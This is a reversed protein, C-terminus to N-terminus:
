HQSQTDGSAKGRFYTKEPRYPSRISDFWQRIHRVSGLVPRLREALSKSMGM